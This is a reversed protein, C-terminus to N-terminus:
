TPWGGTLDVSEPDTSAPIVVSILEWAYEKCQYTHWVIDHVLTRFQLPTMPVMVGEASRWRFNAPFTDGNAVAAALMGFAAATAPDANFRHGGVSVPGRNIARQCAAEVRRKIEARRADLTPTIIPAPLPKNKRAWLLYERWEAMGRTILKGDALRRVGGTTVVQYTM